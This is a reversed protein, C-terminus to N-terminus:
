RVKFELDSGCNTAFGRGIIQFQDEGEDDQLVYKPTWCGVVSQIYGATSKYPYSM